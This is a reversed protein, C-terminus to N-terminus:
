YGLDINKLWEAVLLHCHMIAESMRWRSKDRDGVLNSMGRCELVPVGFGASVQVVASGEMNEAWAHYLAFRDDATERDGSAMGVTVSPGVSLRFTSVESEKPEAKGVETGMHELERGGGGKLRYCGAPTMEMIKVFLPSNKLSIENYCARGDLFFVPIGIAVMSRLQGSLLVGEDGLFVPDSLLVDGVELPGQRFAGACGIHWVMGVRGRSLIRALTAAANVKGIGAEALLVTKSQCEGWCWRRGGVKLNHQNELLEELGALEQSVAAILLVDIREPIPDFEVM